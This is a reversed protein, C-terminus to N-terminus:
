GTFQWGYMRHGLLPYVCSAGVGIDLIHPSHITNDDSCRSNSTTSAATTPTNLLINLWRLYNVRNPLPPTLRNHPLVVDLNFEDKFLVTSLTRLVHKDKFDFVPISSTVTGESRRRKIACARLEPYTECLRVVDPRQQLM